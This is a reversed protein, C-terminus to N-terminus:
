VWWGTTTAVWRFGTALREVAANFLLYREFRPDLVRLAPDHYRVPADPWRDAPSPPFTM